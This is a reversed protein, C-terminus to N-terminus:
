RTPCLLFSLSLGFGCINGDTHHCSNQRPRTRALIFFSVKESM